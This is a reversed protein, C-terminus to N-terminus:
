LKFDANAWAKEFRQRAEAAEQKKSQADLSKALGALGWGNDRHRDLNQRYVKEAEAPRGAALL